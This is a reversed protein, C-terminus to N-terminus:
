PASRPNSLHDPAAPNLIGRARWGVTRCRSPLHLQRRGRFRWALLLRLSTKTVELRRAASPTACRTPPPAPRAALVLCGDTCAPEADVSSTAAPASPRTHLSAGHRSAVRRGIRTRARLRRAPFTRGQYVAARARPALQHVTLNDTLRRSCRPDYWRPSTEDSRRRM